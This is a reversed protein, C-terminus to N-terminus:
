ATLNALHCCGATLYLYFNLTGLVMQIKKQALKTCSQKNNVKVGYMQKMTPIM